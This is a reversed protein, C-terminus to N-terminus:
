QSGHDADCGRHNRLAEEATPTAEAAAAEAPDTETQRRRRWPRAPQTLPPTTTMAAAYAVAATALVGIAATARLRGIRNEQQRSYM